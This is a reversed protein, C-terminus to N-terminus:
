QLFTSLSKRKRVSIVKNVRERDWYGMDVGDHKLLQTFCHWLSVLLILTGNTMRIVSDLPADARREQSGHCLHLIIDRLLLMALRRFAPWCDELIGGVAQDSHQFRSVLCMKLLTHRVKGFAVRCNFRFRVMESFCCCKFCISWFKFCQLPLTQILENESGGVETFSGGPWPPKPDCNRFSKRLLYFYKLLYITQMWCNSSGMLTFNSHPVRFLSPM